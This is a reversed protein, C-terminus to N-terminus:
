GSFLWENGEVMNMHRWSPVDDANMGTLEFDATTNEAPPRNHAQNWATPIAFPNQLEEPDPAKALDPLIPEFSPFTHNNTSVTSTSATNPSM